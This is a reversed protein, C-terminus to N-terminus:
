GGPMFDANSWKFTNKALERLKLEGSQIKISPKIVIKNFKRAVTKLLDLQLQEKSNFHAFLGSKSIGVSNALKGITLAEFGSKSAIFIAKNLIIDRTQAGKNM